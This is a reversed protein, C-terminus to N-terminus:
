ATLRGSNGAAKKLLLLVVVIASLAGAVGVLWPPAEVIRNALGNRAFTVGPWIWLYGIESESLRDIGVLSAVAAGPSWRSLPTSFALAAVLVLSYAFTAFADRTMWGMWSSLAAYFSVMLLSGFFPGVVSVQGHPLPWQEAGVRGALLLVLVVVFLAAVGLGITVLLRRLAIAPGSYRFELAWKMTGRRWESGTLSAGIAVLLLAGSALAMFASGYKIAGGISQLEGIRNVDKSQVELYNLADRKGLALCRKRSTGCKDGQWNKNAVSEEATQLQFYQTQQAITSCLGALVAMGIVLVFLAPRLAIRLDGCFAQYSM